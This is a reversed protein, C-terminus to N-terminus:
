KPVICDSSRINHDVNNKRNELTFGQIVECNVDDYCCNGLKNNQKLTTGGVQFLM